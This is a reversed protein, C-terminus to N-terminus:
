WWVLLKWGIKSRLLWELASGAQAPIKSRPIVIVKRSSLFLVYNGLIGRWVAFSRWPITTQASETRAVVKEEDFTYHTPLFLTKNKQSLACYGTSMIAFAVYVGVAGILLLRFFGAPALFRPIVIYLAILLFFSLNFFFLLLWLMIYTTKSLTTEITIPQTYSIKQINHLLKEFRPISGPPFSDRPIAIFTLTSFFLVYHDAIIKWDVIANWTATSQTLETQATIKEDDFTYQKPLFFVFNQTSFALFLTFVIVAM